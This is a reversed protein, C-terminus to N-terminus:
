KSFGDAPNIRNVTQGRRMTVTDATIAEVTWGDELVEGVRARRGSTSMVYPMKGLVVSAISNNPAGSMTSTKVLDTIVGGIASPALTQADKVERWRGYAASGVIGDVVLLNGRREVSLVKDLGAAQLRQRLDDVQRDLPPAVPSPSAPAPASPAAMTEGSGPAIPAVVKAVSSSAVPPVRAALPAPLRPPGSPGTVVKWLSALSLAMASVLVAATPWLWWRRSSSRDSSARGGILSSRAPKPRSIEVACTGFKLTCPLAVEVSQGPEILQIGALVSGDLAEITATANPKKAGTSQGPATGVADTAAAVFSVLAHRPQVDADTLVINASLASGITVRPKTVTVTAGAHRGHTVTLRAYTMPAQGAVGNVGGNIAGGNMSAASLTARLADRGTPPTTSKRSGTLVSKLALM